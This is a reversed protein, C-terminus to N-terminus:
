KFIARIGIDSEVFKRSYNKPDNSRTLNHPTFKRTYFISYGREHTIASFVLFRVYVKEFIYKGQAIKTQLLNIFYVNETKHNNKKIKSKTNSVFCFNQGTSFTVYKIRPKIRADPKCLM